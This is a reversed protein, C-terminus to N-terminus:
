SLRTLEDSSGQVSITPAPSTEDPLTEGVDTHEPHVSSKPARVFAVIVILVLGLVGAVTFVTRVGDTIAQADAVGAARGDAAVVTMVTIFLATGAAGAVQQFTGLAASAHSYRAPAVSGLASTMLPTFTAALGLCLTMNAGTLLWASTTTDITTLLWVGATILLAGPMVLVRPGRRDYIRGVVPGAIGMLLGGPLTLLGTSLPSFGLVAQAFYPVVIFTGMMTSMAVVMAVIALSFQFSAFVRLDLLARDTRQLRLQRIVFACLGIVGVTFPIWVPVASGHDAAEGIGVLGYVLGGFGLIAMPVSVVDIPVSVTPSVSRVCVAGVVLAAVAIPIMVGFIWRWGLHDLVLGSLTPGLAPAVAIVVSINGMMVGRRNEPVLTMVTTMLLPLMIATGVAQVVRAVLLVEFGPAVFALVTGATFSSMATIFLPRTGIRQILFGTLPIVVAMTLMFVTTLWQGVSPPVGLQEQLVPIAVSMVTENLIVVFTAVLLLGIVLVHDRTLRDTADTRTITM